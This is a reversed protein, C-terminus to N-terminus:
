FALVDVRVRSRERRGRGPVHPLAPRLEIRPGDVDDNSMDSARM